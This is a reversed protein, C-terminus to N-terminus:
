ESYNEFLNLFYNNDGLIQSIYNNYDELEEEEVVQFALLHEDYKGM